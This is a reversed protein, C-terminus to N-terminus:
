FAYSISRGEDQDCMPRAVLCFSYRLRTLDGFIEKVGRVMHPSAAIISIEDNTPPEAPRPARGVDSEYHHFEASAYWTVVVAYRSTFKNSTPRLTELDLM